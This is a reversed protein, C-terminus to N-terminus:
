ESDKWGLLYFAKKCSFCPHNRFMRTLFGALFICSLRLKDPNQSQPFRELFCFLLAFPPVSDHANWKLFERYGARFELIPTPPPIANKNRSKRQLVVPEVKLPADLIASGEWFWSIQFTCSKLLYQLSLRMMNSFTHIQM